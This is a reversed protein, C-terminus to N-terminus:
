GRLAWAALGVLLAGLCATLFVKLRELSRKGTAVAPLDRKRELHLRGRSTLQVLTFDLTGELGDRAVDILESEELFYVVEATAADDLGLAAQLQDPTASSDANESLMRLTLLTYEEISKSESMATVESGDSRQTTM